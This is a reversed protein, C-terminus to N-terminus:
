LNKQIKYEKQIKYKKKQNKSNIWYKEFGEISKNRRIKFKKINLFKEIRKFIKKIEQIKLKM